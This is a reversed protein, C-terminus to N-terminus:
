FTSYGSTRVNITNGKQDVLVRNEGSSHYSSFKAKGGEEFHVNQLCVLQSQYKRQAEANTGILSFAPVKITDIDAIDPTGNLEAHASFYEPAMFSIQNTNGQAYWSPMGMQMLGSYKGIYMGTVDMVIDQGMRYNLYLNYSNISFALAGTEDQIVLSKFM